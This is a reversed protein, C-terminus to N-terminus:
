PLSLSWKLRVVSPLLRRGSFLCGCGDSRAMGRATRCVFASGGYPIPKEFSAISAIKEEAKDALIIVKDGSVQVYGGEVAFEKFPGGEDKQVRVVGDALTSVLPVHDYLFGMEGESGPVVVFHVEDSYFKAEPTVIDCAFKTM